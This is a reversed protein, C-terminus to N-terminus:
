IHQTQFASMIAFPLNILFAFFAAHEYLLKIKDILPSLLENWYLTRFLWIENQLWLIHLPLWCVKVNPERKLSSTQPLQQVLHLGKIPFLILKPRKSFSIKAKKFVLWFDGPLKRDSPFFICEGVLHHTTAPQQHTFNTAFLISFVEKHSQKSAFQQLWRYNACYIIVQRGVM